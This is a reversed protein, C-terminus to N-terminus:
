QTNRNINNLLDNQKHTILTQVNSSYNKKKKLCYVAYSSRMLSQLESTHEESRLLGEHDGDGALQGDLGDVAAVAIEVDAAQRGRDALEDHLVGFEILVALALVVTIEDDDLNTGGRVVGVAAHDDLDAGM